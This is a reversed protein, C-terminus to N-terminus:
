YEVEEVDRDYQRVFERILGRKEEWIKKAPATRMPNQEIDELASSKIYDLMTRFTATGEKAEAWVDKVIGQAGTCDLMDAEMLIVLEMPIERDHIRDKQSHRSVLSCIFGIREVPYGQESLYRGCIQASIMGHGDGDTKTYGTDHFIVATMLADYDVLAKEGCTLGEYIREAYKAVRLTHQFRDFKIKKKTRGGHEDNKGFLKEVYGILDRYM